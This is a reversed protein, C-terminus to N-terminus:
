PVTREFIRAPNQFDPLIGPPCTDSARDALLTAAPRGKPRAAHRLTGPLAGFRPSM